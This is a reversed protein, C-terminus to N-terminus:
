MKEIMLFNFLLMDSLSKLLGNHNTNLSFFLSGDSRVKTIRVSSQLDLDARAILVRTRRAPVHRVEGRAGLAASAAGLGSADLADLYQPSPSKHRFNSPFNYFIPLM